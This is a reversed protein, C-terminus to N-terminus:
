TRLGLVAPLQAVGPIIRVMAGAPRPHARPQDLGRMGARRPGIVDHALGGGVHVVNHESTARRRRKARVTALIEETSPPM